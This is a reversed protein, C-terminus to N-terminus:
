FAFLSPIARETVSNVHLRRTIELVLHHMELKHILALFITLENLVVELFTDKRVVRIVSLIIEKKPLYVTFRNLFNECPNAIMHRNETRNAALVDRVQDM